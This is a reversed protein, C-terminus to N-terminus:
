LTKTWFQMDKFTSQNQDRDKWEYHSVIGEAKRFGQSHWFTDLPRYNSPRLPHTDERVVACFSLVKIFPLSRAFREREDFFIKGLGQGRYENLLVSEGFYFVTKPDIGNDQFPKKFNEVEEEAWISTTAGVIKGQDEVLFVFSHKAKFYTELYDKEYDLNGEYLYPFDFFVKLRLHALEEVFARAQEGSLRHFKFKELTLAGLLKM